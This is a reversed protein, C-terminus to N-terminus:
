AFRSHLLFERNGEAGLIPSDISEIDSGGVQIVTQKVREVAALQANEDRVIGGKGISERGAEFQPKVLVVAELSSPGGKARLAAVVPPIVLTASIFSVDMALFDAKASLQDASLYRANTKELLTVRPDLRLRAAIQGYGTDIAIVHEAGHQLMCDTFGGTSAGVDLAIKGHLDIKWHALARELKLGGRSVYRPEDGLIRLTADSAISIGPKEVKQGNVLVRGALILAQARERSTAMGRELLLKDLRVKM